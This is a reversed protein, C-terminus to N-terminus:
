KKLQFLDKLNWSPPDDLQRLFDDLRSITSRYAAYREMLEFGMRAWQAGQGTFIFAIKQNRLNLSNHPHLNLPNLSEKLRDNSAVVFARYAFFTRRTALTHAVNVLAHEDSVDQIAAVNERLTRENHASFVLPSEQASDLSPAKKELLEEDILHRVMGHQEQTYSKSRPTSPLLIPCQESTGNVVLELGNGSSLPSRNGADVLDNDLSGFLTTSCQIFCKYSPLFSITAELIVHANAGGYGFSNVSARRVPLKPWPTNKVAIKLRGERLNVNPNLSQFGATPPVIGHELALVTKMIGAIGSAAESHGLNSKISGILVADEATSRQEAFVRGIAAVELPDGVQTGTGHCEVYGTMSFDLGGAHNHAHRIVAEQGESSPHTIRGTRGNANM